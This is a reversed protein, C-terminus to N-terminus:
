VFNPLASARGGRGDPESVNARIVTQGAAAVDPRGSFRGSADQWISTAAAVATQRQQPALHMHNICQSPRRALSSPHVSVSVLVDLPRQLDSDTAGPRSGNPTAAATDRM